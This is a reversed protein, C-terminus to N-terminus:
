LDEKSCDKNKNSQKTHHEKDESTIIENVISTPLYGYRGNITVGDPYLDYLYKIINKSLNKEFAIHIPLNGDCNQEKIGNPYIEIFLKVIDLLITEECTSELVFHLPLDGHNSKCHVSEPYLNILYKTIAIPDKSYCAFHICLYGDIDKEKIIEPCTEVLLQIIDIPANNICAILLSSNGDFDKEQVLTSCTNLLLRILEINIPITESLLNDDYQKANLAHHLATRGQNDKAKVNVTHDKILSLARQLSNPGRTICIAMLRTIGGKGRINGMVDWLEPLGGDSDRGILSATKSLGIITHAEKTYGNQALIVLVSGRSGPGTGHIWLLPSETICQDSSTTTTTTSSSSTTSSNTNKSLFLLDMKKVERSSSSV